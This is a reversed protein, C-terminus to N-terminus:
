GRVLRPKVLTQVTDSFHEDLGDVAQISAMGDRIDSEIARRLAYANCHRIAKLAEQHRDIRYNRHLKEMAIRVFPALQLWVREILPVSVQFPHCQYLYRHFAQNAVAGLEMNGQQYARDIENDLRELERFHEDRIYALAGEAAHTELVIRLNFLENLKAPTMQPVIVRRNDKVEIAGACSLRQLAERIPMSSVGLVDALGCITLAFGPRIHGSLLAQRLTYYVWQNVSVEPSRETRPIGALPNNFSQRMPKKPLDGELTKHM